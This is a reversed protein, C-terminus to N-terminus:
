SGVNACRQIYNCTHCSGSGVLYKSIKRLLIVQMKPVISPIMCSLNSIIIRNHITHKSPVEFPPVLVDGLKTKTKM